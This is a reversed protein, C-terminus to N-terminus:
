VALITVSRDIWEVVLDIENFNNMGSLRADLSFPLRKTDKLEYLDRYMKPEDETRYVAARIWGRDRDLQFHATRCDFGASALQVILNSLTYIHYVGSDIKVDIKLRDRHDNIGLIYPIEVILLGDTRLLKHWHFLTGVPNMAYQLSDHCWIIDQPPLEVTSFDEFRWSMDGATKITQTPYLEVATTKIKRPRGDPDVLTAWWVADLGDGAGMDCVTEINSLYDDLQEIIGLTVLSHEYSEQPTM